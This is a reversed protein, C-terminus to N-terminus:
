YIRIESIATDSYKTGATCSLLGIHISSTVKDGVHFYQFGESDPDSLEVVIASYDSFTISAYLVKGNENYVKDNLRYGNCIGIRHITQPTDSELDIWENEGTGPANEIWATTTNGDIVNYPSYNHQGQDPLQSSATVKDFYEPLM